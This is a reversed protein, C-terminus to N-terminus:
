LPRVFTAYTELASDILTSHVWLLLDPDGAHYGVGGAVGRVRDHARNVQRAAERAQAMTGFVMELTLTMTRELRRLPSALFDSHEAVGAAVLPHALQLLLARGGGLM